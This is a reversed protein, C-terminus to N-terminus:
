GTRAAAGASQSIGSREHRRKRGISASDPRVRALFRSRGPEEIQTAAIYKTYYERARFDVELCSRIQRSNKEPPTRPILDQDEEYACLAPLIRLSNRSLPSRVNPKVRRGSTSSPKSANVAAPANAKKLSFM